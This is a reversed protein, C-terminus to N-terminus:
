YTPIVDGNIRKAEDAYWDVYSAGFLIEGKAEALPKGQEETIIKALDDCNAVILDYWRRLLAAREKGTKARWAPWADQAIEIAQRVAHSDFDPLFGVIEGTAPDVVDFTPIASGNRWRGGVFAGARYLDRDQLRDLLRM